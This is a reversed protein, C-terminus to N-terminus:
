RGYDASFRLESVWDVDLFDILAADVKYTTTNEQMRGVLPKLDGRVEPAVRLGARKAFIPRHLAPHSSATGCYWM